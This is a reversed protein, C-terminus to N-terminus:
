KIEELKIEYLKGGLEVFQKGPSLSLLKKFTDMGTQLVKSLKVKKLVDEHDAKITVTTKRAM